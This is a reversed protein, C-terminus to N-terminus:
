WERSNFKRLVEPIKLLMDSPLMGYEGIANACLDGSRGHIYAAAAASTFSDLKQGLLSVIIGALVDGSGGKAMGPNGSSNVCIEGSYNAILTRHGKLLVICGHKEAFAKVMDARQQQKVDCIRAFEGDHPTLIVPHKARNLVDIHGSLANIGDADLVIPVDANEILYIVTQTIGPSRGLGPGILLADQNKLKNILIEVSNLTIKGQDDCPLPCFVPENLKAALIAHIEKPFALMVVGSGTRAAAMAAFYPAGTYERCGALIAVRGYDGKHSEHKRIPIISSLFEDDIFRM